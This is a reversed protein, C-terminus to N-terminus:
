EAHQLIIKKCVKDKLKTYACIYPDSDASMIYMSMSMSMHMHMNMCMCMCMYTIQEFDKISGTASGLFSSINGLKLLVERKLSSCM